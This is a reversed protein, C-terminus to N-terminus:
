NRPQVADRFGESVAQQGKVDMHRRVHKQHKGCWERHIEIEIEFTIQFGDTGSLMGCNVQGFAM